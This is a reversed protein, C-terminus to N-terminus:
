CGPLGAKTRTACFFRIQTQMQSILLRQEQEQNELKAIRAEVGIKDKNWPAERQIQDSVEARSIQSNLIVGFMVALITAIVAALIASTSRRGQQQDFRKQM